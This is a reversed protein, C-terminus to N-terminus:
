FCRGSLIIPQTAENAQQAAQAQQSPTQRAQQAQPVFVFSPWTFGSAPRTPLMHTM